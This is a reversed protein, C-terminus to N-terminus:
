KPNAERYDNLFLDILSQEGEMVRGLDVKGLLQFLNRTWIIAHFPGAIRSSSVNDLCALVIDIASFRGSPERIASIRVSVTPMTDNYQDPPLVTIGATELARELATRVAEKDVGDSVLDDSLDAVTVNVTQIGKIDEPQNLAFATASLVLFALLFGASKM